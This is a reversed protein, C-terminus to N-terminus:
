GAATDGMLLWKWAPIQIVRKGDREFTAGAGTGVILTATDQKSQDLAEWLARLEREHTVTDSANACVQYLESVDGNLADGMVFDVEYGHKKTRLSALADRRMGVTRRRLELYVADELRQGADLTHATGCALALGPDVAYIKPQSTTSEALSFSLERVAFVLFAEQFYSLLDGLTEKTTSVGVAKLNNTAQRLSLQRANLALLRQSFLSAVRPQRFDHREVVDRAVVRQTYSQLLAIAQPRPLDFTAPFGGDQLYTQCARELVLREETSPADVNAPIISRAAAYETFSFPLLEFDLARGRFATSIETSLMTSSSGSVYITAKRTSVIRRLWSGWDSMEQLEDFFLYAGESLASPNIAYFAELVEDGTQPTCPKLRDDDFDFYCINRQSVGSKLLRDIEQLLRYSKGCRRIGTVVKVLNGIRPTLPEGLDLSRPYLPRYADISFDRLTAAIVDNM